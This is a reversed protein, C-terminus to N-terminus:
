SLRRLSVLTQAQMRNHPASLVKQTRLVSKYRVMKERGCQLGSLVSSPRSRLQANTRLSHALSRALSLIFPPTQHVSFNRTELSIQIIYIYMYKSGWSRLVGPENRERIPASTPFTNRTKTGNFVLREVCGASHKSKVSVARTMTPTLHLWRV